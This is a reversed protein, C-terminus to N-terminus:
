SCQATMLFVFDVFYEPEAPIIGQGLAHTIEYGVDGYIELFFDRDINTYASSLSDAYQNHAGLIAVSVVKSAEGPAFSVSGEAAVFHTGEIATGSITRYYIVASNGSSSRTITFEISDENQVGDSISFEYIDAFAKDTHVSIVGIFAAIMILVVAILVGNFKKKLFLSM